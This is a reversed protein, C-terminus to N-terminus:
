RQARETCRHQRHITGRLPKPSAVSEPQRWNIEHAGPKATKGRQRTLTYTTRGNLHELTEALRDIPEADLTVVLATKDDDDGTITPQGCHPCETTRAARANGEALEAVYRRKYADHVATRGYQSIASRWTM